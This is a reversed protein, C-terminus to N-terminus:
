RCFLSLIEKFIDLFWWLNWNLLFLWHHSNKPFVVVSSREKFAKWIWFGLRLILFRPSICPCSFRGWRGYWTIKKVLLWKNIRQNEVVRMSNIRLADTLRKWILWEGLELQEEETLRQPRTDSQREQTDVAEAPRRKSIFVREEM